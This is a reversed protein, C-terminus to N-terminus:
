NVMEVSPYPLPEKGQFNPQLAKGALDLAQRRIHSYTKMMEPAVHGVQAQIVWDPVGKECLTTVATHRGDHFRVAQLAPYIIEDEDNRAAKHRMSRWASRWSTIPRTPDIKRSKTGNEAVTLHSPFVYHDPNAAGILIAKAQLNALAQVCVDNLSPKRHGAATKSRRIDITRATFDINYWRLAKIECARMGCFFALTSAAHAYLWDPRSQAVEFLRQQEEETLARGVPLKTNPIPKYDERFRSWLRAHKLLQRLVSVEGNITKPAKGAHLRTNQYEAIHAVTISRLKTAKFFGALAPKQENWYAFMRPSVQARREASYAALAVAVTMSGYSKGRKQLDPTKKELRKLCERELKVAERYDTTKLSERYYVGNVVALTHWFKGRKYLSM